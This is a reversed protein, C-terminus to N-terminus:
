KISIKIHKIEEPCDLSKMKLYIENIDQKSDITYWNEIILGLQKKTDLEIITIEEEGYIQTHSYIINCNSTLPKGSMRFALGDTLNVSIYGWSEYGSIFILSNNCYQGKFEYQLNEKDELTSHISCAKLEKKDISKFYYCLDKKIFINPYKKLFYDESKEIISISQQNILVNEYEDINLTDIEYALQSIFERTTLECNQSWITFSNTFFVILIFNTKIKM